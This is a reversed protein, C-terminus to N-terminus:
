RTLAIAEATATLTTGASSGAIAHSFPYDSHAQLQVIVGNACGAGTRDRLRVSVVSAGLASADVAAQVARAAHAPDLCYAGDARLRADDLGVTVAEEAATDALELLARKRQFAWSLDFSLAALVVLILVGAPFLLLASGHEHDPPEPM